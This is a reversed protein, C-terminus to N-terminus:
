LVEIKEGKKLYLGGKKGAASAGLKGKVIRRKVPMTVITVKLPTVKYFVRIAEAIEHKGATTAVRFVYVGKEASASAKEAVHPHMLIHRRATGLGKAAKVGEVTAVKKTAATKPVLAKASAPVAKKEKKSNLFAM